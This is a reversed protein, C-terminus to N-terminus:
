AVIGVATSAADPEFPRPWNGSETWNLVGRLNTCGMLKQQLLFM